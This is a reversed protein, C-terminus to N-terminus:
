TPPRAPRALVATATLIAGPAVLALWPLPSFLLGLGLLGLGLLLTAERDDPRVAAWVRERLSPRIPQPEDATKVVEIMRRAATM